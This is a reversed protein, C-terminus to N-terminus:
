YEAYTEECVVVRQAAPAIGAFVVVASILVWAKIPM